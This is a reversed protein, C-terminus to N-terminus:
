DEIEVHFKHLFRHFAPAILVGAACIFGVGSFIAYFSAFLKGGVTHLESVPGMGGLIMASNLVADIFSMDEFGAYGVIGVGWAIAICGFAVLAYKAQRHLFARTSLLRQSRHEFMQGEENSNAM